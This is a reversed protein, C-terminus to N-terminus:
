KCFAGMFKDLSSIERLHEDRYISRTLCLLADYLNFVSNAHFAVVDRPMADGRLSVSYKEKTWIVDHMESLYRDFGHLPLFNSILVARLIRRPCKEKYYTGFKLVQYTGKKIDDTRELGPANKSDDVTSGCGCTLWKRSDVQSRRGGRGRRVTSYVDYLENWASIVLGTNQPESVFRILAPYPWDDDSARGLPIRLDIHPLYLSLESKDVDATAQSHDRKPMSEGDRVETMPRALEIELPYVSLPSSKIEALAVMEQDYIVLDVDGQRDTSKGFRVAPAIWRILESLILITANSAIEGIPDSAPKNAKASPKIGRKVSCRPCTKLYPFYLAPGENMENGACYTWGGDSVMREAYKASVLFDFLAPLVVDPTYQEGVVPSLRCLARYSDFFTHVLEAAKDDPLSVLTQQLAIMKSRIECEANCNEGCPIDAFESSM